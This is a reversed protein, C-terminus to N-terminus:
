FLEEEDWMRQVKKVEAQKIKGNSVLRNLADIGFSTYINQECGEPLEYEVDVILKVEFKSIKKM